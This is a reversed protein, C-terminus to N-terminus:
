EETTARTNRLKEWKEFSLRSAEDESVEVANMLIGKVKQESVQIEVTERLAKAFKEARAKTTFHASIVAPVGTMVEVFGNKEFLFRKYFKEGIIDDGIFAFDEGFKKMLTAVFKQLKVDAVAEKRADDDMQEFNGSPTFAFPLAEPLDLLTVYFHKLMTEEGFVVVAKRKLYRL